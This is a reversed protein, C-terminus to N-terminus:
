IYPVSLFHPYYFNKFDLCLKDVFFNTLEGLCKFYIVQIMEFLATTECNDAIVEIGSIMRFFGSIPYLIIGSILGTPYGTVRHLGLVSRHLLQLVQRRHDM